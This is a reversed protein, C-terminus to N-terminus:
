SSPVRSNFSFGELEGNPRGPKVFRVPNRTVVVKWAGEFTNSGGSGPDQCTRLVETAYLVIEAMSLSVRQRREERIPNEIKIVCPESGAQYFWGDYLRMKDYVHGAEFIKTFLPQCTHLTVTDPLLHYCDVGLFTLPRSTINRSRYFDRTSELSAILNTKSLATHVSPVTLASIVAAYVTFLSLRLFM